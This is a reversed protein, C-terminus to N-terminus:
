KDCRKGSGVGGVSEPDEEEEEVVRKESTVTWKVLGSESEM